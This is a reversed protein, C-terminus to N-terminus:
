INTGGVSSGPVLAALVFNIASYALLAVILGIIAYLVTNKASTVASANGGSVVYRLGGVILMVVSLAGVVFLMANSISVFVGAVGFLNAPQSSGQAAKAGLQIPSLGYVPVSLSSLIFVVSTVASLKNFITKNINNM